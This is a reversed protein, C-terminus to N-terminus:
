EHDGGPTEAYKGGPVCFGGRDYVFGAEQMVARVRPAASSDIDFAKNERVATRRAACLVQLFSLDAVADSDMALAVRDTQQLARGLAERIATANEITLQGGMLINGPGGSEALRFSM